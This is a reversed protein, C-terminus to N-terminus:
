MMRTIATPINQIMGILEMGFVTTTLEGYKRRLVENPAAISVKKSEDVYTVDGGSRRSNVRDKAIMHCVRLAVAYNYKAGFATSSTFGEAIAILAEIRTDSTYESGGIALVIDVVSLDEFAM